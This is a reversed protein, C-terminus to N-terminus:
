RVVLPQVLRSLFAGGLRPSIRDDPERREDFILSHRGVSLELRDRSLDVGLSAQLSPVAPLYLDMALMSTCTVISLPLITRDSAVSM